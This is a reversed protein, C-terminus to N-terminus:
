TWCYIYVQLGKKVYVQEM